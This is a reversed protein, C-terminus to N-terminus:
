YGDARGEDRPDAQGQFSSANESWAVAQSVGMESVVKLPHGKAELQRRVAVPWSEELILQDPRWQHHFRPARMAEDLPMGFDVMRLIIVVVQSIITPGGAAGLSLIPRGEKLVITPSMSSLPRKGPEVANAEAGILGFANPVGPQIAFDDMQNTMVIGTGPIV